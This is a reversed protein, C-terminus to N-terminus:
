LSNKLGIGNLKLSVTRTLKNNTGLILIYEKPLTIASENGTSLKAAQDETIEGGYLCNLQIQIQNRHFAHL